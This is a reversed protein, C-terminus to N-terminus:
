HLNVPYLQHENLTCSRCLPYARRTTITQMCICEMETAHTCKTKMLEPLMGTACQLSWRKGFTTVIYSPYKVVKTVRRM